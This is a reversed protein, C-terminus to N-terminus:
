KIHMQNCYIRNFFMFLIKIEYIHLLKVKLNIPELILFYLCYIKLAHRCLVTPYISNVFKLMDLQM